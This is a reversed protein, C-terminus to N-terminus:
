DVMIRQFLQNFQAPAPNVTDLLRILEANLSPTEMYFNMASVVTPDVMSATNPHNFGRGNWEDLPCPM